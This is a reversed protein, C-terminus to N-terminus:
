LIFGKKAALKQKALLFMKYPDMDRSAPAHSALMKRAEEEIAEEEAFNKSLVEVIKSKIVSEDAKAVMLEKSRYSAILAAALRELQERKIKM